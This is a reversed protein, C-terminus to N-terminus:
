LEKRKGRKIGYEQLLLSIFQPSCEYQRAIESQRLREECYLRHLIEPELQEKIGKGAGVNRFRVKRPM